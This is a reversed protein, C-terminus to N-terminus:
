LTIAPLNIVKLLVENTPSVLEMKGAPHEWQINLKYGAFEDTFKGDLNAAGFAQNPDINWVSSSPFKGTALKEIEHFRTQQEADYIEM